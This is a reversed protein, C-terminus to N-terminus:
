ASRVLSIGLAIAEKSHRTVWTHHKGCLPVWKSKDMLLAGERGQAHHCEECPKKLGEWDCMLCIKGKKWIAVERRYRDLEPQRHESVKRLPKPSKPLTREPKPDPKGWTDRNM